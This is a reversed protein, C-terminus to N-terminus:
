RITAAGSGSAMAAAPPGTSSTSSRDSVPHVSVIAARTTRAAPAGATSGKATALVLQGAVQDCRYCRPLRSAFDHATAPSLCHAARVLSHDM